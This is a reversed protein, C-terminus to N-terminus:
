RSVSQLTIMIRKGDKVVIVIGNEYEYLDCIRREEQGKYAVVVLTGDYDRLRLRELGFIEVTRSKKKCFGLKELIRSM